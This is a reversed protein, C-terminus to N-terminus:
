AATAGFMHLIKKSHVLLLRVENYLAVSWWHDSALLM